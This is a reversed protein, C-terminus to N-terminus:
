NMRSNKRRRTESWVLRDPALSHQGEVRGQSRRAVDGLGGVVHLEVCLQQVGSGLYLWAKTFLFAMTRWRRGEWNRAVPTVSLIRSRGRGALREHPALAREAQAAPATSRALWWPVSEPDRACRLSGIACIPFWSVM